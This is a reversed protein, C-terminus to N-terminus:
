LPLASLRALAVTAAGGGAAGARRPGLVNGIAPSTRPRPMAMAYRLMTARIGSAATTTFDSSL